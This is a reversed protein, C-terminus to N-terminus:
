SRSSTARLDKDIGPFMERLQYQRLLPVTKPWASVAARTLGLQRAVESGSGFFRIVAEKDMNM